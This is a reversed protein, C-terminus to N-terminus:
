ILKLWLWLATLTNNLSDSLLYCPSQIWSPLYSFGDRVSNLIAAMKLNLWFSHTFNIKHLIASDLITSNFIAAMRLNLSFLHTLNKKNLITSDLIACKLIAAM